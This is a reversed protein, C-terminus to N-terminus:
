YRILLTTPALQSSLSYPHSSLLLSSFCSSVLSSLSLPTLYCQPLMLISFLSFYHLSFFFAFYGWLFKLMCLAVDFEDFWRYKDPSHQLRNKIEYLFTGVLSVFTHFRSVHWKFIDGFLIYSVPFSLLKQFLALLFRTAVYGCSLHLEKLVEQGRVRVGNDKQKKNKKRIHHLFMGCWCTCM